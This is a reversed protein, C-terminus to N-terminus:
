IHLKQEHVEVSRPQTQSVLGGLLKAIDLFAVPSGNRNIRADVTCVSKCFQLCHPPPQRWTIPDHEPTYPSVVYPIFM